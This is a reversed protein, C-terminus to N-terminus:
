SCGDCQTLRKFRYRRVGRARASRLPPVPIEGQPRIHAARMRVRKQAGCSSRIKRKQPACFPNAHQELAFPPHWEAGGKQKPAPSPFRVRMEQKPLLPKVVLSRRRVKKNYRILICKDLAIPFNRAFVRRCIVFRVARPTRRTRDTSNM